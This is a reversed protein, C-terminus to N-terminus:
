VGERRHRDWALRSCVSSSSICRRRAECGSAGGAGCPAASSSPSAATVCASCFTSSTIRSSSCTAGYYTYGYYTYGYYTYGYYAYRAM